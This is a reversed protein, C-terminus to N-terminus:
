AGADPVAAGSWIRFPCLSWVQSGHAAILQRLDDASKCAVDALDLIADALAAEASRREPLPVLPREPDGGAHSRVVAHDFFTRHSCWRWPQKATQLHQLM